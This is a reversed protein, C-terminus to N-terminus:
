HGIEIVIIRKIYYDDLNVNYDLLWEAIVYFAIEGIEKTKVFDSLFESKDSISNLAKLYKGHYNTTVFNMYEKLISDRSIEKEDFPMEMTGYEFTGDLNKCRTRAKVLLNKDTWPNQEIWTSDAICYIELRLQSKEFLAKSKKSIGKRTNTKGEVIDTLYKRYANASDLHPYKRKLFDNEFDTVLYDLTESNEKGLIKDFETTQCEGNLCCFIFLSTFLIEHIKM